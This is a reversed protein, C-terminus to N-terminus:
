RQVMVAPFLPLQNPPGPLTLGDALVTLHPDLAILLGLRIENGTGLWLLSADRTSSFLVGSGWLVPFPRGQLQERLSAMAETWAGVEISFSDHLHRLVRLVLLTQWSYLAHRGPGAPAVDPAVIGRRICWERVQHLTLGSLGCAESSQVLQMNYRTDYGRYRTFPCKQLGVTRHRDM